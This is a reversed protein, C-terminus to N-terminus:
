WDKLVNDIVALDDTLGPELRCSNTGYQTRGNPLVDKSQNM